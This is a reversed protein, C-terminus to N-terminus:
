NFPSEYQSVVKLEIQAFAEQYRCTITENGEVGTAVLKGKESIEAASGPSISWAVENTVFSTSKNNKEFNAIAQLQLEDRSELVPLTPTITLFRVAPIV